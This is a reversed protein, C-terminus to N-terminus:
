RGLNIQLKLLHKHQSKMLLGEGKELKEFLMDQKSVLNVHRKNLPFCNFCDSSLHYDFDFQVERTLM